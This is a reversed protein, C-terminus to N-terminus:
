SFKFVVACQSALRLKTIHESERKIPLWSKNRAVNVKSIKWQRIGATYSKVDEGHPLTLIYDTLIDIRRM